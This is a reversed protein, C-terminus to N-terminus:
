TGYSTGDAFNTKGHLTPCVHIGTILAKDCKPTIMIRNVM